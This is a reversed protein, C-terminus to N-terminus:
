GGNDIYWRDKNGMPDKEVVVGVLDGQTVSIEMPDQPQHHSVVTYLKTSDYSSMLLKKAEETQASSSPQTSFLMVILLCISNLLIGQYLSSEISLTQTGIM